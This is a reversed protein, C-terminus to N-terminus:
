FVCYLELWVFYYLLFILLVANYGFYIAVRCDVAAVLVFLIKKAVTWLQNYQFSLDKALEINKIKMGMAMIAILASFHLLGQIQNELELLLFLM